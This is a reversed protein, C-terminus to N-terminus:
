FYGLKRAVEISMESLFDKHHFNKWRTAARPDIKRYLYFKYDGVMQRNKQMGSTMKDGHYPELMEPEFPLKLFQCLQRIEREPNQLLDEYKLVYKRQEPIQSLFNIINLHSVLWILEALQRRTFPHEFKFFNQDLRAELFSYITAYPHRQLHIYLTNEFEEEARNLINLDIAYAPTKDVFLQPNIKMQLRRYFEHTSINQRLYADYIEQAETEDCHFVEMLTRPIAENWLLLGSKEFFEHREKLFNFSLLDMEPPAFLRSHGQLIVRLLTSGSRPPSFIFIAQKNKQPATSSDVRLPVIIKKFRELAEETLVPENAIARWREEACDQPLPPVKGFKKEVFDSFYEQMFLAFQEVTPAYLLVGPPPLHHFDDILQQIFRQAKQDDGGRAFFNDTVSLEDVQLVQKWLELIYKEVENRPPIISPNAEPQTMSASEDNEGEELLKSVEEDSLDELEALLSELEEPSEQELQAEAIQNAIGDITPYEFFTRLPLNVGFEEQIKSVVQTAMMSHGGLEFFNDFVGVQEINLIERVIRALKEESETRPAVFPASSRIRSFDPRPLAHRNIKGAPTLPIKELRIFLAPIMYEPLFQRLKERLLEQKLEQGDEAEYYAVLTKDRREVDFAQVVAQKIGPLENLISEIEGLEIRFGRIKLQHDVRGLFEINGDALFRVRDGTKYVRGREPKLPNLVFREKTLDDRKLYGKALNGGGILLEGPIGIPAPHGYPDIVYFERNARPRGIPVSRGEFQAPVAFTSATIVTETPGYANLLRAGKLNIKQWAQLTDLRFVDGGVIILRIRNEPLLEPQKALEQVFQNWYATPPNIVTLDYEKIKQAFQAASWIENDRMCVTAGSILPPLIQEISADFNLAAFQLVNDDETLQYYDKMDQCHNALPGHQVEVGKPQGTSGSTYIVYAVDQAELNVNLNEPSENLIAPWEEDLFIKEGLAQPQNKFYGKTVLLGAGSDQLMYELRDLPYDPDLPLYVGGAKLVGLMAVIMEPSRDANVGMIQGKTLGKKLLYRAFQNAQANLQAYTLAESKVRLAISDATKAAQEEFLGVISKQEDYWAEPQSWDEVLLKYEEPTLLNIQGVRIQPDAVIEELIKLYHAILRDMTQDNFLDTNYELKCKLPLDGDTVNLILDFKTTKNELEILEIELGPLQLKEVPANNMVFMAQFLPSHSMDREPQLEEVLMEFPLDQNAYAGLTTEKIQKLFETFKPNDEITARLVLTNVFFGILNETEKRNRNAIPSGVCIDNQSSYRHLLVFFAALLTMFLTVDQRRSLDRLKEALDPAIEFLKFNGNYTQYAPRPRDLPLELLPPIGALKQRWYDLQQQLTKGKLWKRQWVAFDAYQIALPELNAPKGQVSATYLRMIEHVFLGTSWNDSVIHHMVLLLGFHQEGFKLLTIRLLPGSTLDFPKLAEEMAMRHFEHEQQDAPLASLDIQEIPIYLEPAIVQLPHGNEEAFTTRLVEHRKIVENLSKELAKINLDGKIRLISPINYLPSGPELRDLFWLRQQSFSLPFRNTNRPQPLIVLDNLEIGQERLLIEFLERKEYPLSLVQKIIEETSFGKNM